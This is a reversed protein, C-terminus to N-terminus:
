LHIKYKCVHVYRTYCVEKLVVAKALALEQAITRPTSPPLAKTLLYHIYPYVSDHQVWLKGLLRLSIAMLSPNGGLMKLTNATPGVALPHTALRPLTYLLELLSAPSPVLPLLYIFM